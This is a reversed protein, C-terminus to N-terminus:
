FGPTDEPDNLRRLTEQTEELEGEYVSFDPIQDPQDAAHHIRTILRTEVADCQEAFKATDLAEAPLERHLAITRLETFDVTLDDCLLTGEPSVPVILTDDELRAMVLDEPPDFVIVLTQPALPEEDTRVQLTTRDIEPANQEALVEQFDQMQTDLDDALMSPVHHIVHTLASLDLADLDRRDHLLHVGDETGAHKRLRHPDFILTHPAIPHPEPAPRAASIFLTPRVLDHGPQAASFPSKHSPEPTPPKPGTVPAQPPTPAPPREVPLSLRAHLAEVLSMAPTPVNRDTLHIATDSIRLLPTDSGPRTQGTIVVDSQGATGSWKAAYGHATADRMAHLM